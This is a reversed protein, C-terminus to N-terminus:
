VAGGETEEEAYLNPLSVGMEQEQKPSLTFVEESLKGTNGFVEILEQSLVVADDFTLNRSDITVQFLETITPQLADFLNEAMISLDLNTQSRRPKCKTALRKLVRFDGANAIVYEVSADYNGGRPALELRKDMVREVKFSDGADIEIGSTFEITDVKAVVVDGVQFGNYNGM